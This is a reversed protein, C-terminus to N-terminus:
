SDQVNELGESLAEKKEKYVKSLIVKQRQDLGATKIEKAIIELDEVTCANGISERFERVKESETEEKAEVYQAAPRSAQYGSEDEDENDPYDVDDMERLDPFNERVYMRIATKRIMMFNKHRTAPTGEGDAKFSAGGYSSGAAILDKIRYFVRQVKANADAADFCTVICAAVNSLNFGDSQLLLQTHKDEDIMVTKELVSIRKIAELESKELMIVDIIKQYKEHVVRLLYHYSFDIILNGNRVLMYADPKIGDLMKGALKKNMGAAKGKLLLDQVQNEFVDLGDDKLNNAYMVLANFLNEYEGVKSKLRGLMPARDVKKVNYKNSYM